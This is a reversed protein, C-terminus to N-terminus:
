KMTFILCTILYQAPDIVIPILTVDSINDFFGLPESHELFWITKFFITKPKIKLALTELKLKGIAWDMQQIKPTLIVFIRFYTKIKVHCYKVLIFIRFFVSDFCYVFNPVSNKVPGLKTTVYTNVFTWLSKSIVSKWYKGIEKEFLVWKRLFKAGVANVCKQRWWM